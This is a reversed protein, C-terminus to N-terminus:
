VKYDEPPIRVGTIRFLHEAVRKQWSYNITSDHSYVGNMELDIKRSNGIRDKRVDNAFYEKKHLNPADSANLDDWINCTGTHSWDAVLSRGIRMLLVSHGRLLQGDGRKLRGFPSDKFAREAIDVGHSEFAVYADDILGANYVSYWFARRYRWQRQQTEEQEEELIKDVVDLFQRLSAKVLWRKVVAAIDDMGIWDGRRIRPDGFLDLVVGCLLGTDAESLGQSALPMVLARAVEARHQPFALQGGDDLAFTRVRDIWAKAGTPRQSAIEQLGARYGAEVFGARADLTAAGTDRLVAAVSTGSQLAVRAVRGAAQAGDFVGLRGQLKRWPEGAAEAGNRLSKAIRDLQPRDPAFEALYVSALQRYPRPRRSGTVRELVAGLGTSDEAIAPMTTWLCWAARNWDRVAPKRGSEIAALFRAAVVSLDERPRKDLSAMQSGRALDYDATLSQQRLPRAEFRWQALSQRLSM